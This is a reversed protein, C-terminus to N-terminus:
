PKMTEILQSATWIIRGPLTDAKEAENDGRGLQDNWYTEHDVLMTELEDASVDDPKTKERTETRIISLLQKSINVSNLLLAKGNQESVSGHLDLHYAIHDSLMKELEELSFQKTEM